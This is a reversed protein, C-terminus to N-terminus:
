IAIAMEDADEPLEGYQALIVAGGFVGHQGDGEWSLAVVALKTHSLREALREAQRQEDVMVPPDAFPVGKRGGQFSRVMYCTM